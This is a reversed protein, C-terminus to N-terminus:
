KDDGAEEVEVDDDADLKEADFDADLDDDLIVPFKEDDTATM